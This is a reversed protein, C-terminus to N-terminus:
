LPILIGRAWHPQPQPSMKAAFAVWINRTINTCAVWQASLWVSASRLRYDWGKPASVPPWLTVALMTVVWLSNWTKQSGPKVLPLILSPTGSLLLVNFLKLTFTPSRQQQSNELSQFRSSKPSLRVVMNLISLARGASANLKIAEMPSGRIGSSQDKRRMLSFGDLSQSEPERM